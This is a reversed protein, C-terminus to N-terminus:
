HFDVIYLLQFVYHGRPYVTTVAIIVPASLVALILVDCFSSLNDETDSRWNLRSAIISLGTLVALIVRWRGGLAEKCQVWYIALLKQLGLINSFVFERFKSPNERAAGFVTHVGPFDRNLITQWQFWPDLLLHQTEVVHLSYHQGFAVASVSLALSAKTAVRLLAKM